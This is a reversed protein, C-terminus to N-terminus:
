NWFLKPDQDRRHKKPILPGESDGALAATEELAARLLKGSWIPMDRPVNVRDRVYRLAADAGPPPAVQEGTMMRTLACRLAEDVATKDRHPNMQIINEKHKITRFLAEEASQEPMEFGVDPLSNWPGQNVMRKNKQQQPEDNEYCGGMQPPLDHCHTHFDSQTGRYTARSEMADFWAAFEPNAKPDRLTYGKYYFLSANMREVYPTFVVDVISFDDLFYPGPTRSLALEVKKVVATFNKKNRADTDKDGPYCLWRCWAGFLERELQRMPVVTRDSMPRYLPGYVEELVFLIDDSETVIQGDIEIAPLM